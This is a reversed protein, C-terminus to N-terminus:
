GRRWFILSAAVISLILWRHKMLIRLYELLDLQFDSPQEAGAGAYAGVASSYPDSPPFPNRRRSSSDAVAALLRSRRRPRFAARGERARLSCYHSVRGGSGCNAFFSDAVAALPRRRRRPRSGARGERGRTTLL